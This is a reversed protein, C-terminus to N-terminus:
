RSTDNSMLGNLCDPIGGHARGAALLQSYRAELKKATLAARLEAVLGDLTEAKSYPREAALESVTSRRIGLWPCVMGLDTENM